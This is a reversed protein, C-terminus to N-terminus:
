STFFTNIIMTKLANRHQQFSVDPEMTQSISLSFYMSEILNGIIEASWDNKIVGAQQAESIIQHYLTANRKGAKRLVLKTQDNRLAEALFMIDLRTIINQPFSNESLQQNHDDPLPDSFLSDLAKELGQRMDDAYQIEQFTQKNMEHLYDMLDEILKEKGPFYLYVAGPSLEAKRCIDQMTTPHFGKEAFCYVAAKLIQRRRAEAHEPSVKPM